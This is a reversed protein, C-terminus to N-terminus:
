RIKEFETNNLLRTKVLNHTFLNNSLVVAVAWLKSFVANESRNRIFFASEIYYTPM